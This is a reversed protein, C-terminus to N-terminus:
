RSAEGRGADAGADPGVLADVLARFARHAALRQEMRKRGKATVRYWKRKRGEGEGEEHAKVEDWSGQILGSSELEKLLPYLVGPTLRLRGDSKSSLEKTIAYGYKPADALLSLVVLEMDDRQGSRGLM